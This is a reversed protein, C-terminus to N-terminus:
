VEERKQAVSMPQDITGVPPNARVDDVLEDPHNIAAIDFHHRKGRLTFHKTQEPLARVGASKMTQASVCLTCNEDKTASELRSATNVTDGIATLGRARGYGMQGLVVTGTDLGIGMRLPADLDGELRENLTGLNAIMKACADLAQRAGDRNSKDDLGFIAMFGDGLFKDIQGGHAEVAVGMERSFQNILYVVDYALKQEATRTFSRLDCFMITVRQERGSAWPNTFGANSATSDPPLIRIVELDAAPRLQCALRVDTGAKVRRLVRRESEEAPPQGELGKTIRVRCTSCRGRGGCVSAHPVGKAQSIELLTAGLPFSVQPGDQYAVDVSDARSLRLAGALRAVVFFALAVFLLKYGFDIDAGLQGWVANDTVGLREYYGGMFEGDQALPALARGASMYGGFALAPLLGAFAFLWDRVWGRYWPKLRAWMHFGICGHLWTMVLGATNFYISTASFVFLVMLVYEYSDNIGYSEFAHRTGMVHTLLLFPILLGSILQGWEKIPMALNRRRLFRTLASGVHVVLAGYLVLSVPPFRWFARGVDMMTEMASLSLLGLAHNIFHTTVYFLLIFGSVLRLVAANFLAARITDWRDTPANPETKEQAQTSAVTKDNM